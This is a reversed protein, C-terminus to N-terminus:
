LFTNPVGHDRAFFGWGEDNFGAGGEFPPFWVIQISQQMRPQIM